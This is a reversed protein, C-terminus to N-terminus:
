LSTKSLQQSKFGKYCQGLYSMQRACESSGCRLGDSIATKMVGDKQFCLNELNMNNVILKINEKSLEQYQEQLLTYVENLNVYKKGLVCAVATSGIAIASLVVTTKNEKIWTVTNDTKAKFKEKMTEIKSTEKEINKAEIMKKRWDKHNSSLDWNIKYDFVTKIIHM